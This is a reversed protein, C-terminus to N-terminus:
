NLRYDVGYITAIMDPRALKSRLKTMHVDLTRSTSQSADGWVAQLITARAVARGRQTCLETFIGFEIRTLAVV